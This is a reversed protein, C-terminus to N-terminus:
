FPVDGVCIDDDLEKVVLSESEDAGDKVVKFFKDSHIPFSTCVTGWWTTQLHIYRNSDHYLLRRYRRRISEELEKEKDDAQKKLDISEDFLKREAETYKIDFGSLIGKQPDDKQDNRPALKESFDEFELAEDVIIDLGVYLNRFYNYIKNQICEDSVSVPRSHYEMFIGKRSYKGIKVLFMKMTEM